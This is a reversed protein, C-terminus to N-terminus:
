EAGADIEVELWDDSEIVGDDRVRVSFDATESGAEFTIQHTVIDTPTPGNPERRSVGVTLTEATDGSRTLTFTVTGDEVVTDKDSAISILPLGDEQAHAPLARAAFLGGAM